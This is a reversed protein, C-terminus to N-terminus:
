RSSILPVLSTDAGLYRVGGILALRPVDAPLSPPKLVQGPGGSAAATAGCCAWSGAGGRLVPMFGPADGLWGASDV